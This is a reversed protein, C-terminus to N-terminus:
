KQYIKHVTSFAIQHAIICGLIRKPIKWKSDGKKFDDMSFAINLSYVGVIAFKSIHDADFSHGDYYPNWFDGKYPLYHYLSQNFGDLAGAAFSLSYCVIDGKGFLKKKELQIDYIKSEQRYILLMSDSIDVHQSYSKASICLIFFLIELIIMHLAKPSYTKVRSNWKIEKM